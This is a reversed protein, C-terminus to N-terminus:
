GDVLQPVGLLEKLGGYRKVVKANEVMGEVVETKGVMILWSKARTIATYLVRRTMLPPPGPMMALIVASYESGQSKHVTMAYAPELESLQEFSYVAFRDDYQVTLTSVKLDIETIVGIEGNFVGQGAEASDNQRWVLEYNNRIQMVRDGERYLNEGFRKELKHPASPNLAEQLVKNLSITGCPGRRTPTLVQIQAPDVGLNQPLRTSCLEKITDVAALMDQRRMFFFDGDTSNKLEPLDGKNVSHASIIIRSKAAQRFIETLCVKPLEPCALLDELVTGPGVAPLQDPDGVLILRASPKLARALDCMLMLDVMSVEDLVVVDAKIPEREDRMFRMAGTAPDFGFELLRHITSSERGSLETMRKAARGTPAALSVKLGMVDFLKLMGKVATTKGTGPGGTLVMLGRSAALKVAERQAPAYEVELTREISGVLKDLDPPAYYEAKSRKKVFDAIYREADFVESLYVMGKSGQKLRGESLLSEMASECLAEEVRLLEAAVPVLKPGPVCAHGESLCYTLEHIIGAACRRPDDEEVGLEAALKDVPDFLSDYPEDLLIYPNKLLIKMAGDGHQKFLETAHLAPLSHRVLLEMLRRLATQSSFTRGIAAARKPTIGRVTSLKEPELEMVILADRGFKEVILRATAHGVGQVAGSGLYEVIAEATDPMAREFSEIVFQSGHSQHTTWHGRAALREGPYPFPLYGVATSLSGDSSAVRLVAWGTDENGYIVSQIQGILSEDTM